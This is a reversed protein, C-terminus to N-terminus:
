LGGVLQHGLCDLVPLRPYKPFRSDSAARGCRLYVPGRRTPRLIAYTCRGCLGASSGPGAPEERAGNSHDPAVMM